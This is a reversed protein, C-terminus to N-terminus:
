EYINAKIPQLQDILFNFLADTCEEITQSSTDIYLDAKEPFDFQDNIGTLNYLKDPHGDPLLARKYLGKTDRGILVDVPCNVSVIKVASYTHALEQRIEEYPNIASILTIIGRQSFKNAIFGLRRINEMRDQRTYSLEKFLMKRYEDGDIIEVSKNFSELKRKVSHALTTKGAGSLGCILIIM